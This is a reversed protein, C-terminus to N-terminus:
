NYNVFSVNVESQRPYAFKNLPQLAAWCAEAARLAGWTHFLILELSSGRYHVLWGAIM